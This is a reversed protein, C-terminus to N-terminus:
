LSSFRPLTYHLGLVIIFKTYYMSKTVRKTGLKQMILMLMRGMFLNTMLLRKVMETAHADGHHDGHESALLVKVDEETKYQHSDWFGYSVGLLGLIMLAISAMKLRNSITYM